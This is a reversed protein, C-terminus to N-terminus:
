LKVGRVQTSYEPIQNKFLNRVAESKGNYTGIRGCSTGWLNSVQSSGETLVYTYRRGTPCTSRPDKIETERSNLYGQGGLASLFTEYAELTNPYSQSSIVIASYGGIIDITRESQSVTIRVERHEDEGVLEGITTHTVSSDKKAYDVLQAAKKTNAQPTTPEDRNFVFVIALILIAITALTGFVFKM